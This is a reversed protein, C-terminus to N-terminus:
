RVVADRRAIYSKFEALTAFGDRNVDAEDFTPAMTKRVVSSAQVEALTAKGTGSTNISRFAAASGGGALYEAESVMGDGDTDYRKFADEIMLDIVRERGLKGTGATDAAAFREEPTMVKGGPITGCGSLMFSAVLVPVVFLKMGAAFGELGPSDIAFEPL